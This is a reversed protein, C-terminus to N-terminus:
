GLYQALFAQEFYTPSFAGSSQLVIRPHERVKPALATLTDRLTRFFSALRLTNNRHFPEGFVQSVVLRNELAYGVGTPAQTRDRLICLSGTQTRVMDAAYLILRNGAPLGHCPRLFTPNALVLRAPLHGQRLLRQPGYLDALVRDLLHARQNIGKRLTALEESGILVPLADLKWAREGFQGDGPANYSVGHDRVLQRVQDGRQRLDSAGLLDALRSVKATAEGSREVYAAWPAASGPLEEASRYPQHPM